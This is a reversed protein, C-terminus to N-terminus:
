QIPADPPPLHFSTDPEVARVGAVAELSRWDADPVSGSIIGIAEHIQDVHMGRARLAAAIEALSGRYTDDVTIHVNNAM